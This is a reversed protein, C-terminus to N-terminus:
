KSIYKRLTDLVVSEMVEYGAPTPHVGDHTLKDPLGGRDDVMHSYYDMYTFGNSRAYDRLMGNLKIIDKAPFVAKNFPIQYSPLVSAIVPDIGNAKALQCMSKINNFIRQVTTRGNNGALDNIGALIVVAKPKLNIVDEQFRVLMHSSTQGSIGRGAFNHSTFFEPRTKAWTDTISNGMFVVSPAKTLASNISDYRYFKAWDSARSRRKNRAKMWKEDQPDFTYDPKLGREALYCLLRHTQDTQIVSAGLSDVLYGYGKKPHKISAFDDHGGQLTSWLSNYWIRVKGRLLETVAPAQLNLTDAYGLEIVAPHLKAMCDRVEAVSEPKDLKVLPKYIIKGLHRGYRAIVTDAPERSKMIAQSTTGTEELIQMVQDFYDFSKDLDFLVEGKCATMVERFTPVKYPTVGAVGNKVRLKKIDALTMQDVRGKGNTTRDVKSDHMLILEGDATRRLDIEVIDAGLTIASKIGELTNEAFGRWDGRHSAVLVEKCSPDLLKARITDSRHQAFAPLAAILMLGLIIHTTFKKM